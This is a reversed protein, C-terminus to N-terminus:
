GVTVTVLDTLYTQALTQLQDPTVHLIADLLNATLQETVHTAAIHRYRESIDFVGDISRILDGMMYNRVRDLEEDTVPQQQLRKIEQFIEDVASQTAEAAVDATLFFVISGRYIQTMSYIGYTYGKDERLNSMLRSGFYGGLVTNLVLFRAYDTSDWPLPLIRGIRITSQVANPISSQKLAQNNSHPAPLVPEAVPVEEVPSLYQDALTLLADDIYGEGSGDRLRPFLSAQFVWGRTKRENRAFALKFTNEFDFTSRHDTKEEAASLEVGWCGGPGFWRQWSARIDQGWGHDTYYFVRPSLHFQGTALPFNWKVAADAYGVAKLSRLRIGGDLDFKAHRLVNWGGMLGIRWDSERAMPDRGPLTDRGHNDFVLHFRQELGPLATDLRM